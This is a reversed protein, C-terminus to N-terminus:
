SGELGAMLGQLTALIRGQRTAPDLCTWGALVLTHRYGRFAALNRRRGMSEPRVLRSFEKAVVGDVNPDAILELLRQYGPAYLM